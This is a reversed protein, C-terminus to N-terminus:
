HFSLLDGVTFREPDLEVGLVHVVIDRASVIGAPVPCGAIPQTVLLEEVCAERMLKGAASVGASRDICVM